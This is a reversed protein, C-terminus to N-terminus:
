RLTWESAVKENCNGIAAESRANYRRPNYSEGHFHPRVPRRSADDSFDVPWRYNMHTMSWHFTFFKGLITIKTTEVLRM